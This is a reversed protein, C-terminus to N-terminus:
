TKARIILEKLESLIIATAGWIVRNDIGYYPVNKLTYTETVQINKKFVFHENLLDKIKITFIEEVEFDDKKFSPLDKLYFVNPEVYFNSIPIYVSTLKGVYNEMTLIIGIEEATERVATEYLDIDDMEKKGGPFSIQGGHSGDYQPRQTLIIEENKVIILAVSSEKVNKAEKLALSSVKRNLPSMKLHAEEGPLEKSFLIRLFDIEM